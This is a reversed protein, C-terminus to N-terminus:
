FRNAIDSCDVCYGMFIGHQYGYKECIECVKSGFSPKDHPNRYYEQIAFKLPFNMSYATKEFFYFHIENYAWVSIDQVFVTDEKNVHIEPSADLSLTFTDIDYYISANDQDQLLGSIRYIYRGNKNMRLHIMIPTLVSTSQLYDIELPNM